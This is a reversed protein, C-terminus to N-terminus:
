SHHAHQNGNAESAHIELLAALYEERVKAAKVEFQQELERLRTEYAYRNARAIRLFHIHSAQNGAIWAVVSYLGSTVLTTESLPYRLFAIVGVVLIACTLSFSFEWVFRRERRSHADDHEADAEQNASVAGKKRDALLHVADVVAYVLARIFLALALAVVLAVALALATKM